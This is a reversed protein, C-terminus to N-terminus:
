NLSMTWVSLVSFHCWCGDSYIPLVFILWLLKEAFDFNLKEIITSHLSLNIGDDWTQYFQASIMELVKFSCNLVLVYGIGLIGTVLFFGREVCDRVCGKKSLLCVIIRWCAGVLVPTLQSLGFFFFYGLSDSSWNTRKSLM